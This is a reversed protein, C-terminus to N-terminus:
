CIGLIRQPLQQCPFIFLEYRLSILCGGLDVIGNNTIEGRSLTLLILNTKTRHFHKCYNDYTESLRQEAYNFYPTIRARYGSLLCLAGLWCVGGGAYDYVGARVGIVVMQLLSRIVNSHLVTCYTAMHNAYNM